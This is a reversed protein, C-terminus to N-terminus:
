FSDESDSDEQLSEEPLLLPNAELTQMVSKSVHPEILERTGVVVLLGTARTMGTYLLERPDQNDHFGDVCLVVCNRELGKFKGVTSYFVSEDDWYTKVYAANGNRELMEQIGHRHKTMLLAIDSEKYFDLLFDVTREAALTLDEEPSTECFYVSPGDFGLVKSPTDTLLNTTQAIPISNRLNVSLRLPVFDIEHTIENNFIKQGRDGFAFIGGSVTDKL